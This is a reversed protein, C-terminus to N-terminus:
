HEKSFYPPRKAAPETIQDLTKNLRDIADIIRKQDAYYLERPMYDTQIKQDTQKVADLQAEVATTKAWQVGIGFIFAAASFSFTLVLLIREVSWGKRRNNFGSYRPEGLEEEAVDTM